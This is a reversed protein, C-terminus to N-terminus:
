SNDGAVDNQVSIKLGYMSPFEGLLAILLSVGFLSVYGNRDLFMLYLDFTGEHLVSIPSPQNVNM